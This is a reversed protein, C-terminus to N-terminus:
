KLLIYGLIGAGLIYYITNSQADHPGYYKKDTDYTKKSEGYYRDEINKDNNNLVGIGVDKDDKESNINSSKHPTKAMYPRDHIARNYYDGM